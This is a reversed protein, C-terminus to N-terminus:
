PAQQERPGTLRLRGVIHKQCYDRCNDLFSEERHRVMVMLLHICVAAVLAILTTEFATALGGTVQQLSARMEQMREAAAVVGWFSGLANSLGYVTGIFGLVPIAWILGRLITYSSDMTGEDNEAQTRLVEDADGIRGMNRLNALANEIRRTLLFNEPDDVTRHLTELVRQASAPTLVFGPDEEPLLKISLAKRQLRLKAAKILLIAGSWAALFVIVYPVAGRETFMAKVSSPPVFASLVGYFAVTALLSVLPALLPGPSTFRGAPFGIRREIDSRRVALVPESPMSERAMDVLTRTRRETTM